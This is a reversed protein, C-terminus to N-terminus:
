TVTSSLRKLPQRRLRRVSRSPGCCPSFLLLICIQIDMKEKNRIIYDCHETEYDNQADMDTEICHHAALCKYKNGDRSWNFAKIPTLPLENYDANLAYDRKEWIGPPNLASCMDDNISEYYYDGDVDDDNPDTPAKTNEDDYFGNDDDNVRPAKTPTEMNEHAARTALPADNYNDVTGDEMNDDGDYEENYCKPSWYCDECAPLETMGEYVLCCTEALCDDVANCKPFSSEQIVASFIFVELLVFLLLGVATLWARVRHTIRASPHVVIAVVYLGLTSTNLDRRPSVLGMGLLRGAMSTYRSLGWLRQPPPPAPPRAMVELPPAAAADVPAHGIAVLEIDTDEEVGRLDVPPDELLAINMAQLRRANDSLLHETEM